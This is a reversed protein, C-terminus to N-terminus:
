SPRKFFRQRRVLLAAALGALLSVGTTTSRGPASITCGGSDPESGNTTSTAGGSATSGGVTSPMGSAAIAGGASPAGGSDSPAGAMAVINGVGGSASPSGGAAFEGGHSGSSDGGAGASAASTGAMATSGGGAGPAGGAGGSGPSGGATLIINSCSYYTDGVSIVAPPCSTAPIDATLMLQRLRLTCGTCPTSPLTIDLDWSQPATKGSHAMSGLVQFNTDNQAAFDIVFCGPHNVTETWTVKLKSGAPFSTEPQTPPAKRMVGCPAGTGPPARPPDKYGDQGDRPKPTVLLVHANARPAWALALCSSLAIRVLLSSRLQM